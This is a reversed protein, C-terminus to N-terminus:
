TLDIKGYGPQKTRKLALDSDLFTLDLLCCLAETTIKSSPLIAQLTCNETTLPFSELSSMSQKGMIM